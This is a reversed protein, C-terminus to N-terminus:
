KATQCIRKTAGLIFVCVESGEISLPLLNNPLQFLDKHWVALLEWQLIEECFLFSM